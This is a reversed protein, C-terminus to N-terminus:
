VTNTKITSFTTQMTVDGTFTGNRFVAIGGKVLDSPSKEMGKFKPIDIELWDLLNSYLSYMEASSINNDHFNRLLPFVNMYHIDYNQEKMQLIFPINNDFISDIKYSTPYTFPIISSQNLKITDNNSILKIEDAKSASVFLLDNLNNRSKSDLASNSTISMKSIDSWFNNNIVSRQIYVEDLGSNNDAKLDMPLLMQKTGKWSDKFHYEITDNSNSSFQLTYDQNKGQGVWEFKIYDYDSLDVPNEYHRSYTISNNESNVKSYEYQISDTRNLRPDINEGEIHGIQGYGDLNLIILNQFDLNLDNRSDILTDAIEENPAVLIKAKKITSIDSLLATTFNYHGLSLLDYAYYQSKTIKNPLVLVTDSMATPPALAPVQIIKGLKSNKEIEPANKLVHSALYGNEFGNETIKAIDPNNLYIVATSNLGNLINMPLEPSISPWMQESYYGINYNFPQFEALSKSRPTISLISSHPDLKKVESLLTAESDSIKTPLTKVTQYELSLFTSIMSGMILFFVFLVPTLHKAIVLSKRTPKKGKIYDIIKIVAIPSLISVSIWLYPFLRREWYDLLQFNIIIYSIIKGIILISIFVIPFILLPNKRNKSFLAVIVPISLFGALGLLEPLVTIPVSYLGGPFALINIIDEKISTINTLWYVFLIGYILLVISIIRKYNVNIPISIRKSYILLLLSAFSIIELIIMYTNDFPVSDSGFLVKYSISILASIPLSIILSLAMDKTRLKIKPVFIALCFIVFVFLLLGPFHVLSLTIIFISSLILYTVRNLNEVRMLFLLLLTLIFDITVPRFWLWLWQSQGVGIDFYTAVFASSFLNYHENFSIFPQMNQYIFIWGLGSFGTFIITSLLHAYRNFRYLYAKAMSYFALILIISLFSNGTQIIWMESDTVDNLAGFSLHFWPYPSRFLDAHDDLISIISYHRVIDFGPVNIMDPYISLLSYVFFSAIWVLTIIEVLNYDKKRNNVFIRKDSKKNVIYRFGIPILSLLGYTISIIIGSPETTLFM